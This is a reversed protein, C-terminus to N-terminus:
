TTNREPAPGIASNCHEKLWMNNVLVTYRLPRFILYFKFCCTTRTVSFLPILRLYIADSKPIPKEVSLRQILSCHLLIVGEFGGISRLWFFSHRRSSFLNNRAFLAINFFGYHENRLLVLEGGAGTDSWSPQHALMNPSIERPNHALTHNKQGMNPVGKHLVMRDKALDTWTHHPIDGRGQAM